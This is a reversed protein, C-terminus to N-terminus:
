RRQASLWAILAARQKGRTSSRVGTIGSWEADADFRRRVDRLWAAPRAPVLPPLTVGLDASWVARELAVPQDISGASEGSLRAVEDRRVPLVVSVTFWPDRRSDVHLHVVLRNGFRGQPRSASPEASLTVQFFFRRPTAEPPVMGTAIALDWAPSGSERAELQQELREMAQAAASGPAAFTRLKALWQLQNGGARDLHPVLADMSETSGELALPALWRLPVSAATACVGQLAVLLDPQEILAVLKARWKRSGWGLSTDLDLLAQLARKWTDVLEPDDLTELRHPPLVLHLFVHGPSQRDLPEAMVARITPAGIRRAKRNFAWYGIGRELLADLDDPM